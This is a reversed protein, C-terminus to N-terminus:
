RRPVALHNSQVLDEDPGNQRRRLPSSLKGKVLVPVSRRSSSVYLLLLLVATVIAGTKFVRSRQSQAMMASNRRSSSTNRPSKEPHRPNEVSAAAAKSSLSATRRRPNSSFDSHNWGLHQRSDIGTSMRASSLRNSLSEGSCARDSHFNLSPSTCRGANFGWLPGIRRWSLLSGASPCFFQPDCLLIFIASHIFGRPNPQRQGLPQCILAVLKIRLWGHQPAPPSSHRHARKCSPDADPASILWLQTCHNHKSNM